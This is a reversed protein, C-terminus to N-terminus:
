QEGYYERTVDRLLETLETTSITEPDIPNTVHHGKAYVELARPEDVPGIFVLRVPYGEYIAQQVAKRLKGLSNETAGFLVVTLSERTFQAASFRVSNAGINRADSLKFDVESPSSPHGANVQQAQVAAPATAALILCALARSIQRAM